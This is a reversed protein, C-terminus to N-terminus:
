WSKKVLHSFYTIINTYMLTLSTHLTRACLIYTKSETAFDSHNGLEKSCVTQGGRYILM